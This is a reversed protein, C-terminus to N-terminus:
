IHQCYFNMWVGRAYDAAAWRDDRNLLRNDGNESPEQKIWTFIHHEAEEQSEVPQPTEVSGESSHFLGKSKQHSDFLRSRRPRGGAAACSWGSGQWRRWRGRSATWQKWHCNEELPSLHPPPLLLHCAALLTASRRRPIQPPWPCRPLLVRRRRSACSWLPTQLWGAPPQDPSLALYRPWHNGEVEAKRGWCAGMGAWEIWVQRGEANITTM